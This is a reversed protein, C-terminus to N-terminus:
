PIVRAFGWYSLIDVLNGQEDLRKAEWMVDLKAQKQAPTENPNSNFSYVKEMIEGADLQTQEAGPDVLISQIPAGGQYQVIATRYSVGAENVTDPVPFHMAVTFRNGYKDGALIHYDAM